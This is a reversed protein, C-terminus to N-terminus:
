PQQAILKIAGRVHYRLEMEDDYPMLQVPEWQGGAGMRSWGAEDDSDIWDVWLKGNSSHVQPAITGDYSTVTVIQPVFTGEIDQSLVIQRPTAGYGYDHVEYAVYLNGNHMTGFPRLSAETPSSVVDPVSWSSLDQPAVSHLVAPTSDDVWWFLHVDGTAPDIM